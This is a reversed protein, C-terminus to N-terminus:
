VTSTGHSVMGKRIEQAKIQGVHQDRMIARVSPKDVNQTSSKLKRVTHPAVPAIDPGKRETQATASVAPIEKAKVPKETGSHKGNIKALQMVMEVAGVFALAPWASVIMGVLGYAAGYGINAAVTAGVGLWLMLRALWPTSLKARAVYLMTLSAALILGDVSLPLLRGATGNQGHQIGLDFIHSYSIIAAFSAVATVTGATAFMILRDKGMM